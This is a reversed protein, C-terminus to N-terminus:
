CDINQKHLERYQGPTLNNYRKFLKSLYYEDNLGTYHAIKHLPMDSAVLLAKVRRLREENLIESFNKNLIDRILFSTRSNSLGLHAAVDALGIKETAHERIYGIIRNGRTDPVNEFVHQEWLQKLIGEAFVMATKKLDELVEREPLMPLKSYSKYFMKPLGDPLNTDPKRWAGLYFMGYHINNHKLPVVIEYVGKWCKTLFPEKSKACLSNMEHRCHEICKKCFGINCVKNKRHSQRWASFVTMGRNTHFAGANDVITISLNILNEFAKLNEELM